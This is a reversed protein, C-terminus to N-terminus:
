SDAPRAQRAAARSGPMALPAPEGDQYWTQSGLRGAEDWRHMWGHQLGDRFEAQTHRGGTRWFRTWTGHRRGERYEGEEAVARAHLWRRSPGHRLRGAPTEIECWWELGQPPRAGAEHAGPPCSDAVVHAEPERPAVAPTPAVGEGGAADGGGLRDLWGAADADAPESAQAQATAAALAVQVQEMGGSEELWAPLWLGFAVAALAGIGTLVWGVPHPAAEPGGDHFVIWLFAGLAVASLALQLALFVRDALFPQLLGSVNPVLIVLGVWIPLERRRALMPWYVLGLVVAALATPVLALASLLSLPGPLLMGLMGVAVGALLVWFVVGLGILRLMLYGNVIPVWAMWRPEGLKQALIEYLYSSAFYFLVCAFLAGWLFTGLLGPLAEPDLLTEM